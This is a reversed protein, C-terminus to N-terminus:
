ASSPMRSPSSHSSNLRTSKRDGGERVCEVADCFRLGADTIAPWDPAAPRLDAVFRCASWGDYVWRGDNAPVPEAIRFGQPDVRHLLAQTWEAEGADITRKLVVDQVRFAVGEGGALLRPQGRLGFAALVEAPPPSTM